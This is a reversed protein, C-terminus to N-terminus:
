RPRRRFSFISAFLISVVVLLLRHHSSAFVTLASDTPAAFRVISCGLEGVEFPGARCTDDLPPCAINKCLEMYELSNACQIAVQTCYSRCPPVLTDGGESDCLNTYADSTSSWWLCTYDQVIQRCEPTDRFTKTPGFVELNGARRAIDFCVGDDQREDFYYVDEVLKGGLIDGCYELDFGCRQCCLGTASESVCRNEDLQRRGRREFYGRPDHARPDFMGDDTYDADFVDVPTTENTM